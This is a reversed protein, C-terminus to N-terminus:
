TPRFKWRRTNYSDRYTSYPAQPSLATQRVVSHTVGSIQSLLAHVYNAVMYPNYDLLVVFIWMKLYSIPQVGNYVFMQAARVSELKHVYSGSSFINVRGKTEHKMQKFIYMTTGMETPHILATKFSVTMVDFWCSILINSCHSLTLTFVDCISPSSASRTLTTTGHSTYIGPGKCFQPSWTQSHCWLCRLFLCHLRDCSPFQREPGAAFGNHSIYTSNMWYWLRLECVYKRNCKTTVFRPGNLETTRVCSLCWDTWIHHHIYSWVKTGYWYSQIRTSHLASLSILYVFRNPIGLAPSVLRHCAHGFNRASLNGQCADNVATGNKKNRKGFRRRQILFIIHIYLSCM